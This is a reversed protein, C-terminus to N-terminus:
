PKHELRVAYITCQVGTACRYPRTQEVSIVLPIQITCVAELMKKHFLETMHTRVEQRLKAAEMWNMIHKLGSIYELPEDDVDLGLVQCALLGHM